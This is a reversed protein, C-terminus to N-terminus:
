AKDEQGLLFRGTSLAFILLVATGPFSLQVDRSAMQQLSASMVPTATRTLEFSGQSQVAWEDSVPPTKFPIVSIVTKMHKAGRGGKDRRGSHDGDRDRDYERDDDAQQVSNIPQQARQSQDPSQGAALSMIYSMYDPDSPNHGGHQPQQQATSTGGLSALLAQLHPDAAAAQAQQPQNQAPTSALAALVAQLQPNSEGAAQVPAAQQQVPQIVQQYPDYAQQAHYQQLQAYYAAWAAAQQDAPGQSAPQAQHQQAAAQQQQARQEVRQRDKNYGHWWEAVKAADHRMWDPPETPPVPKGKLMEAVQEVLDAAPQTAPDPYDYRRRTKPNAPDSPDPDRWRKTRESSLLMFVQDQKSMNQHHATATATATADLAGSADPQVNAQGAAGSSPSQGKQARRLANLRAWSLGRSSAETWRLHIEALQPEDQPLSSVTGSHMDTDEQPLTHPSKPTPPIDSPDTYVVMLEKSEREAIAKQQETVFNQLGGRTVFQKDRKGQPISLFNIAPPEFWPRYPLEDDEDEDELQAGGQLGQKLAMGESKDDRADRIMNSARGEDELSERHFVRVETLADDEKWTVRLHRRKEKRLRRAREEPTEDKKVKSEKEPTTRGAAKPKSIEDLLSGIGGFKSTVTAEDKTSEPKRTKAAEVRPPGGEKKVDAKSLGGEPKVPPPKAASKSASKAKAGLLMGSGAFLKPQLTATNPAPVAVKSPAPKQGLLSAQSSPSEAAVRKTSKTDVEEDRPRKASSVAPAVKTTTTSSLKKRAADAAASSPTPVSKFSTNPPDPTSTGEVGDLQGEKLVEEKTKLNGKIKKVMEKVDADGKSEFKKSIKAFQLNTMLFDKEMTTVESMLRLVAKAVKGNHDASNNAHILCTVFDSILKQNGGLNALVQHDGWQNAGEVARYILELRRAVKEKLAAADGEKASKLKQKATQFEGTLGRILKGYAAVAAGIDTGSPSSKTLYVVGTADWEAADAEDIPRTKSRKPGPKRSAKEKAAITEKMKQEYHVPVAGGFHQKLRQGQDNQGAVDDKDVAKSWEQMISSALPRILNSQTPFLQDIPRGTIEDPDRIDGIPMEQESVDHLEAQPALSFGVYRSRVNPIANDDRRIVRPPALGVVTAQQFSAPSQIPMDTRPQVFPQATPQATPQANPQIPQVYQQMTQQGKPKINQLPSANNVPLPSAAPRPAGMTQSSMAQQINAQQPMLRSQTTPPNALNSQPQSANMQQPPSFPVAPSARGHQVGIQGQPMPVPAVPHGNFPSQRLTGISQPTGVRPAQQQFHHQQAMTAPIEQVYTGSMGNHSNQQLSSGYPISNLPNPEFFEYDWLEQQGELPVQASHSYTQSQQNTIHPNPGGFGQVHYAQGQEQTQPQHHQSHHQPQFSQFGNEQMYHSDQPQWQHTHSVSFSNDDLAGSAPAGFTSNVFPGQGPDSGNHNFHSYGWPQHNDGSAM